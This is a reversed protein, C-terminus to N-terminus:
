NSDIDNKRSSSKQDQKEWQPPDQGEILQPSSSDIRIDVQKKAYEDDNQVNDKKTKVPIAKTAKAKSKNM